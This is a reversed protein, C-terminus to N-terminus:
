YISTDFIPRAAILTALSRTCACVPGYANAHVADAVCTGTLAVEKRFGWAGAISGPFLALTSTGNALVSDHLVGMLSPFTYLTGGGALSNQVGAALATALLLLFELM